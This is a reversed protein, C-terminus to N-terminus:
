MASPVMLGGLGPSSQAPYAQSNCELLTNGGLLRLAWGPGGLKHGARRNINSSCLPMGAPVRAKSVASASNWRSLAGSAILSAMFLFPPLLTMNTPQVASRYHRLQAAEHRQRASIDQKRISFISTRQLPCVVTRVENLQLDISRNQRSLNLALNDLAMHCGALVHLMISPARRVGKLACQNQSTCLLSASAEEDQMTM